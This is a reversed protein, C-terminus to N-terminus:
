AVLAFEGTIEAPLVDREVTALFAEVLTIPVLLLTEGRITAVLKADYIAVLVLLTHMDSRSLRATDHLTVQAMVM